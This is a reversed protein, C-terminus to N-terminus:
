RYRIRPDIYAYLIDVLLNVLVNIVAFVLIVGQIIPYDRSTIGDYLLRGMGPWAFVVEAIMAMSIVTAFHMGMFSVVPILANRMAHKWIVPGESVGKIRALKVFESDLVELLSSRLLRAQAAVTWWGMTIVPLVYYLAGGMGSAPLLRLHVAFIWILMIGVWFSPLSQGLVALTKCVSDAWTGKKVAAILGLPLSVITTFIMSAIGLKLSNPFREKILDIVPQGRVFANGFDGRVADKLWIGYQVAWPKDLGLHKRLLLIQAETAEEPLLLDCPDGTLRGLVFIVASLMLLALISQLFRRLIYRQM